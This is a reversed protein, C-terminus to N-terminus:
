LGVDKLLFILRNMKDKFVTNNGFIINLFSTGYNIKFRELKPDNYYNMQPVIFYNWHNSNEVYAFHTNMANLTESVENFPVYDFMDEHEVFESILLVNEFEFSLITSIFLQLQM